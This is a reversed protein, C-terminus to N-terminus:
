HLSHPSIHTVTQFFPQHQVGSGPLDTVHYFNSDVRCSNFTFILGRLSSCARCNCARQHRTIAHKPRDSERDDADGIRIIRLIGHESPGLPSCTVKASNKYRVRLFMTFFSSILSLKLFHSLSVWSRRQLVLCITSHIRNHFVQRSAM